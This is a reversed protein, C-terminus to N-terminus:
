EELCESCIYEIKKLHKKCNFNKTRRCKTKLKNNMKERSLKYNAKGVIMEVCKYCHGSHTLPTETQPQQNLEAIGVVLRIKEM